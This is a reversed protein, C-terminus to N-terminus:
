SGRGKERQRERKIVLGNREPQMHSTIAIPHPELIMTFPLQMEEEEVVNQEM